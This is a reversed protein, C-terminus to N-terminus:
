KLQSRCYCGTKEGEGAEQGEYYFMWLLIVLLDSLQMVHFNFCALFFLCRCIIDYSWAFFYIIFTPDLSVHM